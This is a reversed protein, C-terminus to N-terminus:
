FQDKQNLEVADTCHAGCNLQCHISPTRQRMLLVSDYGGGAALQTSHGSLFHVWQVDAM